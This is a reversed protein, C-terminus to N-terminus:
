SAISHQARPGNCVCELRAAPIQVAVLLDRLLVLICKCKGPQALSESLLPDNRVRGHRGVRASLGNYSACEYRGNQQWAPHRMRETFLDRGSGFWAAPLGTIPNPLHM